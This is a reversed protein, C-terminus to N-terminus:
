VWPRTPQLVAETLSNLQKPDSALKQKWLFAFGPKEMSAPSIKADTRM